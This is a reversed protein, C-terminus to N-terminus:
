GTTLAIPLLNGGAALRSAIARAVTESNGTRNIGLLIRTGADLTSGTNVVITGTSLIGGRNARATLHGGGSAGNTMSVTGADITLTGTGGDVGIYNASAFSNGGFALTDADGTLTLSAIGANGIGIIFRSTTSYSTATTYIASSANFNGIRPEQNNGDGPIVGGSWNSPTAYDSDPTTTFIAQGHGHWKPALLLLALTIPLHQGLGRSTPLHRM